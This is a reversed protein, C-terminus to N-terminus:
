EGRTMRRYLVYTQSLPFSGLRNVWAATLEALLRFTVIDGCKRWYAVEFTSCVGCIEGTQGPWEYAFRQPDSVSAMSCPDRQAFM